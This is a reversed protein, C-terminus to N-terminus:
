DRTAYTYLAYLAIIFSFFFSFLLAAIEATKSMAAIAQYVEDARQGVSIGSPM